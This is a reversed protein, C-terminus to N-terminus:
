EVISAIKQKLEKLESYRNKWYIYEKEPDECLSDILPMVTELLKSVKNNLITETNKASDILLTLEDVHRLTDEIKKRLVEENQKIDKESILSFEFENNSM